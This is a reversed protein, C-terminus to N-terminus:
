FNRSPFSTEWSSLLCRSSRRVWSSGSCGWPCPKWSCSASPRLSALHRTRFSLAPLAAVPGSARLQGLARPECSVGWRDERQKCCSDQTGWRTHPWSLVLVPLHYCLPSICLTSTMTSWTDAEERLSHLRQPLLCGGGTNSGLFCFTVPPHKNTHLSGQVLHPTGLSLATQILQPHSLSNLKRWIPRRM